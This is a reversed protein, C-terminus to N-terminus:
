VEDLWAGAFASRRAEAHMTALYTAHSRKRRPRRGAYRPQRLAAVPRVRWPSRTWGCSWSARCGPCWELPPPAKQQERREQQRIKKDDLQNRGTLRLTDLDGVGKEFLLHLRVVDSLDARTCVRDLAREFLSNR